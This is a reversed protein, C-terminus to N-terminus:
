PSIEVTNADVRNYEAHTGVFKIYVVGLRYAIAAVIRYDNGKINFVVRSGKLISASAFTAKVDTPRTWCAKRTEDGWAQIPQAAAPHLEWFDRLTKIAM